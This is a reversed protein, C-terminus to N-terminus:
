WYCDWIEVTQFLVRHELILISAGMSCPKNSVVELIQSHLPHLPRGATLIEVRSFVQPILKLKCLCCVANTGSHIVCDFQSVKLLHQYFVTVSDWLQAHGARPPPTLSKHGHITGGGNTLNIFQWLTKNRWVEIKLDLLCCWVFATQCWCLLNSLNKMPAVWM